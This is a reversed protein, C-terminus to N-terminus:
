PEVTFDYTIESSARLTAAASCYKMMSLDIARQLKDRDPSGHFRFHVHIKKFPSPVADAEREGTVSIEFAGPDSKQKKLISVVDIGSCGALGFLLMEMPRAGMGQGGIAPSADIQVTNGGENKGEMHYADNVRRVEIQM